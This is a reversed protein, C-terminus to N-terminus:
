TIYLEVIYAYFTARNYLSIYYWDYCHMDYCKKDFNHQKMYYIRKLHWHYRLNIRQMQHTFTHTDRYAIIYTYFVAGVYMYIYIYIYMYIYIYIYM